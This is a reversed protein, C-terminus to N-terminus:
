SVSTQEPLFRKEPSGLGLVSERLILEEGWTRSQLSESGERVARFLMQIAEEALEEFPQRVSSLTPTIRTCFESDDFGIVAIPDPIGIGAERLYDIGGFAQRDSAFIIAEVDPAKKLLRRTAERAERPDYHFEDGTILEGGEEEVVRRIVRCRVGGAWGEEQVPGIYGIKRRGHEFLARTALEAGIEHNVLLTGAARVPLPREIFLLPKNARHFREVMEDEPDLFACLVGEVGGDTLVKELARRVKEHFGEESDRFRFNIVDHHHGLLARQIGQSIERDIDSGTIAWLIAIAPRATGTDLM